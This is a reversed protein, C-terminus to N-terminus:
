PFIDACICLLTNATIIGGACPYILSGNEQVNRCYKFNKECDFIKLSFLLNFSSLSSLEIGERYVRIGERGGEEIKGGIQNEWDPNTPSAAALCSPNLPFATLELM